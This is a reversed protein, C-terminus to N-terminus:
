KEMQMGCIYRYRGLYIHGERGMYLYKIDCWYRWGYIFRDGGIDKGIGIHGYRVRYISRYWGRYGCGSIDIGRIRDRGGDM